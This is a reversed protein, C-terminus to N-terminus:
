HTFVAYSPVRRPHGASSASLFAPAPCFTRVNINDSACFLATTSKTVRPFTVWSVTVVAVRGDLDAEEGVQKFDPVEDRQGAGQREVIKPVIM